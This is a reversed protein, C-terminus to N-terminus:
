VELPEGGNKRVIENLLIFMIRVILAFASKNSMEDWNPRHDESVGKMANLMIFLKIEQTIQPTDFSIDIRSHAFANRIAKISNLEAKGNESIAGQAYAVLIKSHFDSLPGRNDFIEDMVTADSKRFTSIIVRELASEILATGMLACAHDSMKSLAQFSSNEESPDPLKKTLRRLEGRNSM